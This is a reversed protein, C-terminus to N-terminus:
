NTKPCLLGLLLTMGKIAKSKLISNDDTKYFTIKGSVPKFQSNIMAELIETDKTSEISFTLRGGIVSTVPRGKNDTKRSFELHSFLIEIERGRM